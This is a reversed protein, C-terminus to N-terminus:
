VYLSQTTAIYKLLKGEIQSLKHALEIFGVTECVAGLEKSITSIKICAKTFDGVSIKGGISRQCNESDATQFFMKCKYEDDCESAWWIMPEVLDLVYANRYDFAPTMRVDLERSEYRFFMSMMEEIKERLFLNCHDGHIRISDASHIRCDEAVKVDCFCSLLGILQYVSFKEMQNWKFVMDTIVLPHIEAIHSAFIGKELLKYTEGMASDAAGIFDDMMIHAASDTQTKIYLDCLEIDRKAYEYELCLDKYERVTKMDEVLTKHDEKLRIFKREAEKKKKNVQTKIEADLRLADACVDAGSRVWKTKEEAMKCKKELEEIARTEGFIQKNIEERMMSKEAFMHFDSCIGKKLLNLIMSYSIQFKSVIKQPKGSLIDAYEKEAPLEFLNNCHIVYGIKDRGRRGARGAAQNYEHPYLYRHESGDYKKLSTFIATRIPCDLGIAFSETAFLLKVLGRTIMLEVIERLVPIMGSHHIGVGKELLKVVQIYEPLEAYERWNTLKSRLIQECNRAMTYPVKSDDELLNATIEDACTEVNKRSFVFCIAPLLEETKMYECLNNLVFKRKMKADREELITTTEKVMKYAAKDFGGSGAATQLMIMKNTNKRLQMETSKDKVTKLFSETTATYSYHALPVHRISNYSLYVEKNSEADDPLLDSKATEIWQAFKEPSDLTASLMVMQVQKPLLLITQEWVKGRSDDNIYHVEDMIVAGLDREIDINFQLTQQPAVSSDGSSLSFLANALIEATMLIVDADPNLKIDGTMLGFSIHPYNQTFDYYKQNLLSKIPGTYIVKKGKQHMYLITFIAPLTKGSGTPVCVLAHNGEVVAEIAYKQFDSLEYPFISFHADYKKQNEEPYHSICLKVM